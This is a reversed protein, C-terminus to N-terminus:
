IKIILFEYPHFNLFDAIVQFHDIFDQYGSYLGHKDIFIKNNYGYRMDFYRIGEKLQQEISWKQNKVLPNLIKSTFTFTNSNHTGPIILDVIRTLKLRKYSHEMWSEVFKKDSEQYM